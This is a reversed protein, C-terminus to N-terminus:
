GAASAFTFLGNVGTLAFVRDVCEPGRILELRVRPDLEGRLELLAHLGSSDVFRLESLDVVVRAAPLRVVQAWTQALMGLAAFDLEGTLKVVITDDRVVSCCGFYPEPQACADQRRPPPDIM